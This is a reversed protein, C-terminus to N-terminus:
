RRETLHERAFGCDPGEEIRWNPLYIRLLSRFVRGHNPVVLHLLEHVVVYERFSPSERLLDTSFSITGTTSCSAWKRRMSQVQVRKPAVNIAEAWQAVLLKLEDRTMVASAKGRMM